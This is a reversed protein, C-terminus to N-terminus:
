GSGGPPADRPMAGDVTVIHADKARRAFEQSFRPGSTSARSGVAIIVCAHNPDRWLSSIPQM